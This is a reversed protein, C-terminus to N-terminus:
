RVASHYFLKLLKLVLVWLEINWQRGVDRVKMEHKVQVLRQGQTVTSTCPVRDERKDGRSPSPTDLSRSRGATVSQTEEVSVLLGTNTVESGSRVAVDDVDRVLPTWLLRSQSTLQRRSDAKRHGPHGWRHSFSLFLFM